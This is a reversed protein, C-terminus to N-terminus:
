NIEHLEGQSFKFNYDGKIIFDSLYIKDDIPFWKKLNPNVMIFMGEENGLACFREFNGSYLDISRMSNISEFTREMKTSALGIESINLISKSSFTHSSNRNLNKRAIFEVINKDKDYFYIAKANWSSFDVMEKNKYPLLDVRRKLWSLAEYAKNSPINFAFHYPTSKKDVRFTLISEGTSFSCEIANRFVVELELVKSYFEIQSELNPTLLILEKIKM